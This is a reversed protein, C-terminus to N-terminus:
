HRQYSGMANNNLHQQSHRGSPVQDSGGKMKQMQRKRLMESVSEPMMQKKKQPEQHMPQGSSGGM